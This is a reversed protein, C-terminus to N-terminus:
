SGALLTLRSSGARSSIHGVRASSRRGVVPEDDVPMEMELLLKYRRGGLFLRGNLRPDFVKLLADIIQKGSHQSQRSTMKIAVRREHM